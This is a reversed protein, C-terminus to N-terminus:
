NDKQVITVDMVQHEDFIIDMASRTKGAHSHVRTM